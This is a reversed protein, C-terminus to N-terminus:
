TAFFCTTLDFMAGVATAAPLVVPEVDLANGISEAFSGNTDLGVVVTFGSTDPTGGGLCVAAVDVVLVDLAAVVVPVFGRIDAAETIAAVGAAGTGTPEAFSGNTDLGVVVTFGSADPTGGVLCVAAVAVVLVGLAAVVVVPVFGRIDAAEAITAAAAAAAGTGAFFEVTTSEVTAGGLAEDTGLGM